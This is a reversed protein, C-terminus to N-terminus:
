KMLLFLDLLNFQNSDKLSSIHLILKVLGLRYSSFSPAKYMMKYKHSNFLKVPSKKDHNEHRREKQIQNNHYSHNVSGNTIKFYRNKKKDFYYGPINM